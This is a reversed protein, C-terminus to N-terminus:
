KAPTFDYLSAVLEYATKGDALNLRKQYLGIKANYRGENLVHAADTSFRTFQASPRGDQPIELMQQFYPKGSKSVGQRAKFAVVTIM